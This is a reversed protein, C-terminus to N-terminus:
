KTYQYEIEYDGIPQVIGDVYGYGEGGNIIYQQYDAYSLYTIGYITYTGDPNIIGENSSNNTNDEVVNTTETTEEVTETTETTETTEEVTETTETTKEKEITKNEKQDINDSGVPSTIDKMDKESYGEEYIIEEEVKDYQGPTPKSTHYYTKCLELEEPTILEGAPHVLTGEDDYYNNPCEVYDIGEEELSPTGEGSEVINGKEDVIVYGESQTYVKGSEDVTLTGGKTDIHESGSKSANRASENDVYLRGDDGRVVDNINFDGSVKTYESKKEETLLQEGLSDLSATNIKDDVVDTISNRSKADDDKKKLKSGVIFGTVAMVGAMALAIAAAIIGKKKKKTKKKSSKKNLHKPAKKENEGNKPSVVKINGDKNSISKKNEVDGSVEVDYMKYGTNKISNKNPASVIVKKEIKKSPVTVMVEKMETSYLKYGKNNGLKNQYFRINANIKEDREMLRKAIIEKYNM